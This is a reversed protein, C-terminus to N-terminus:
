YTEQATRTESAGCVAMLIKNAYVLEMELRIYILTNQSDEIKKQKEQEARTQVGM